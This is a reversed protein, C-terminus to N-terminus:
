TSAGAQRLPTRGGPGDPAGGEALAAPPSRRSRVMRRATDFLGAVGSPLYIIMAIVIAGQVVIRWENLSALWEPLWAVILAGIIPGTWHWTGGIVLVTLTSTLLGFGVNEPTFVTLLVIHCAGALAGIVSSFVFAVVHNRRVDVGSAGALSEDTRLVLLRRGTAGRQSLAAAAATIGALLAVTGTGFNPPVGVLGLAGGTVDDWVLAATRVLLVLALTAMALYLARLRALILSLGFSLVATGVLAAVVAPVTSWAKETLLYGVAYASIGYFGIGAFSFVGARLAVQVSYALLAAIIANQLLAENSSFWGGLIATTVTM